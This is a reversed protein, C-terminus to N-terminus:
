LAAKVFRNKEVHGFYLKPLLVSNPLRIITVRFLTTHYIDFLVLDSGLATFCSDLLLVAFFPWTSHAITSFVTSEYRYTKRLSSSDHNLSMEKSDTTVSSHKQM